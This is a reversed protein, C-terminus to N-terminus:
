LDRVNLFKYRTNNLKDSSSFGQFKNSERDVVVYYKTLGDHLFIRGKRDMSDRMQGCRM